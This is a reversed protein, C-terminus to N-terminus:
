RIITLKGKSIPKQTSFENWEVDVEGYVMEEDELGVIIECFTNGNVDVVYQVSGNRWEGIFEIFGKEELYYVWNHIVMDDTEYGLSVMGIPLVGGHVYEKSIQFPVIHNDQEKSPTWSFQDEKVPVLVSVSTNAEYVWLEAEFPTGDDFVGKIWGLNGEDVDNHNTVPFEGTIITFNEGFSMQMAEEDEIIMIYREIYMGKYMFLLM